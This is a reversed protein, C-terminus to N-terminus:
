GLLKRIVDCIEEGTSPKYIIESVGIERAKSLLDDSIYGSIIAISVDPRIRQLQKALDIGSAGPMNFDTVVLAFHDPNNAFAALAEDPRAFASVTYGRRKLIRPVMLVMAEEDDVFLIHQGSGNLDRTSEAQQIQDLNSEEVEPLYVDFTSGVNIQSEVFIAGGHEKVIGHVVSLGLGTGQGNSKTTFFPEFIREISDPPIGRGDDTVRIRIYRGPPISQTHISSEPLLSIRALEIKILGKGDTMAHWSNTGLNLLVQNIQTADVQALLPENGTDTFIEIGSPLVAKLLTAGEHVLPVLDMLSFEQPQTRSFTLIQQVLNKARTTAKNIENLSIEAPSNEGIDQLALELNGIIAGLLNNFDHAIGGALTGIAEMKQAQRLQFELEQRELAARQIDTIDRVFACNVEADGFRLYNASIEVDRETGDKRIQTSQFVMSGVTRLTNWHSEWESIPHDPDLDFVRKAMLEERSYGLSTCAAENVDVFTADPRIWYMPLTAHDLTFRALRLAEDTAEKDTVDSLVSLHIGPLVNAVSSYEATVVSDSKTKLKMKGLQRGSSLFEAWGPRPISTASETSIIDSVSLTLLDKKEYGLMACAAPNAEVYKGKDDTMLIANLAHDFLAQMRLRSEKLAAESEKRVTIDVMIGQLRKPMDGELFVNVIDNLWVTRGDSAVMRYESQYASEGDHSSSLLTRAIERDVPHVHTLWFNPESLWAEIPYGLLGVAKQSVFTFQLMEADAEWVIGETSNILNALRQQSQRLVWESQKRETIDREISVWHTFFGTKDAIPVMEMELWIERGDKTYNLIESQVTEWKRLAQGIRKVERQDTGPGQLIRPTQGILEEKSYGLIRTCADNVFIIQPGPLDLPEAMTIMVIDNLHGVASEFLKLTEASKNRETLDIHCGMMRIPKGKEDHILSAKSLIGLYHGDKHRMRFENEYNPWPNSAYQTVLDLSIAIDDPHVRSEWEHFSDSIEDDQYGLQRKWIKSYKVENSLLDWDWLGLNAYETAMLFRTNLDEANLDALRRETIDQLTGRMGIVVGQSNRMAEGIAIAHGNTGDARVFEVELEASLGTRVIQSLCQDVRLWSEKKFFKALDEYDPASEAPIVGLMRFLEKSWTIQDGEALWKWSGLKSVAQAIELEHQSEQVANRDQYQQTIDIEVGDWLIDGNELKESRGRGQIWKFEGGPTQIRYEHLWPHETQLSRESYEKFKLTEKKPLLDWLLDNNNMIAEQSHGWLDFCGRSTYNVRKTGDPRTVFQFVVGPINGALSEFLRESARRNTIDTHTGVMRVPKGAEDRATIIGRGLIWKYCGDKCRLRHENSFVMTDGRFYAEVDRHVKPLDEPHVRSSWETLANGVEQDEYGLMVKWQHSYNVTNEPINRDWVGIESGELAFCQREEIERLSRDAKTGNIVGAFQLFHGIQDMVPELTLTSRFVNEGRTKWVVEAHVRNKHAIASSIEQLVNPDTQTEALLAFLFQGQMEACSFGTIPEFAPSMWTIVGRIDTMFVAQM